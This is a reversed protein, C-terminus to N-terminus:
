EEESASLGSVSNDPLQLTKGTSFKLVIAEDSQTEVNAEKGFEKPRLKEVTWISAQLSGSQSAKQIQGLAGLVPLVQAQYIEEFDSKYPEIGEEAYSRWRRYSRDSIGAYICADKIIAGAKFATILREKTLPDNLKYNNLSM